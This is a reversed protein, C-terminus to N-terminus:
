TWGQSGLSQPGGPEETWPTRWALLSSHTAMGKELPDEGGLFWIQIKHTALLKEVTQAVTFIFVWCTKLDLKM